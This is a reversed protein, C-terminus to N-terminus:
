TKAKEIAAKIDVMDPDELLTTEYKLTEKLYHRLWRCDLLASNGSFGEGGEFSTGILIAQHTNYVAFDM